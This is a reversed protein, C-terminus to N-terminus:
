LSPPALLFRCPGLFNSCSWVPFCISASFTQVCGVIVFSM